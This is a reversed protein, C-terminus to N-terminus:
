PRQSNSVIFKDDAARFEEISVGLVGLAEILGKEDMDWDDYVNNLIKLLAESRDM